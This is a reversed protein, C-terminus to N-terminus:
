QLAEADQALIYGGQGMRSRIKLWQGAKETVEVRAGAQLHAITSSVYSAQSMVKTASIVRFLRGGPFKQKAPSRNSEDLGGVGPPPTGFVNNSDSISERNEREYFPTGEIPGSTDIKEKGSTTKSQTLRDELVREPQMPSSTAAVSPNKVISDSSIAGVSNSNVELLLADINRISKLRVEEPVIPLPAPLESSLQASATIVKAQNLFYLGSVAVLVLLILSILIKSNSLGQARNAKIPLIKARVQSTSGEPLTTVPIDNHLDCSSQIASKISELELLRSDRLQKRGTMKKLRDIEKEVILIVEPKTISDLKTARQLFIIPHKDSLINILRRSLRLLLNSCEKKLRPSSLKPEVLAGSSTNAFREIEATAKDVSPALISPPVGGLELQSIAWWITSVHLDSGKATGMEKEALVAIESWNKNDALTEYTPLPVKPDSQEVKSNASSDLNSELASTKADDKNLSAVLASLGLDVRTKGEEKSMKDIQKKHRKVM